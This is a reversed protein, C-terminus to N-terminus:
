KTRSAGSSLCAPESASSAQGACATPNPQAPSRIKIREDHKWVRKGAMLHHRRQNGGARPAYYLLAFSRTIFSSQQAGLDAEIDRLNERLTLQAFAMDSFQEACGLSHVRLDGRYRAVGLSLSTWPHFEILQAFFVKGTNM